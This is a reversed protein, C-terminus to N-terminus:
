KYDRIRAKKRLKEMAEKIELDSMGEFHITKDKGEIIAVIGAVPLGFMIFSEILTAFFGHEEAMGAIEFILGIGVGGVLGYKWAKSKKVIRIVKIDAIDVSEDKGETDLLLLSNPKVTILEGETQYGNKKTIVLKAGHKQEKSPEFRKQRQTTM